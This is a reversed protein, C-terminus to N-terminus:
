ALQRRGRVLAYLERLEAPSVVRFLLILVVSLAFSLIALPLDQSLGALALGTPAAVVAIVASFLKRWRLTLRLERQALIVFLTAAVAEAVLVTLAAGSINWALIFPYCLLVGVLLAIGSAAAAKWVANSVMLVNSALLGLGFLPLFVALIRLVVVSEAFADGYLLHIISPALTIFLQAMLASAIFLVLTGRAYLGSVRRDGDHLLRSFMPYLMAGIAAFLFLSAYLLRSSAAYIGIRDDTLTWSLYLVDMRQIAFHTGNILLFPLGAALLARAATGSFTRRVRMGLKNAWAAGLLFRLMSTVSTVAVLAVLGEGMVVVTVNGALFALMCIFEIVAFPYFLEHANMLAEYANSLGSFLPGISGIALAVLWLREYGSLVGTMMILVVLGIGVFLQMLFFNDLYSAALARNRSVDKIVLNTVGLDAFAIYLTLINMVTAYAGLVGAGLARALYMAVGISVLRYLLKSSTMTWFNLAFRQLVTVTM